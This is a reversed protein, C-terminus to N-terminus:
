EGGRIRIRDEEVIWLRQHVPEQALVPILRSVLRRIVPVSQGDPRLVIIGRHQHPPYARLDSFDLDLTILIRQEHVCKALLDPDSIGSMGESYVSTVDYGAATVDAVLDLPLNEDLKLKLM